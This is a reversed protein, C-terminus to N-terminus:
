GTCTSPRRETAVVLANGEADADVTVVGFLEDLIKDSEGVSKMSSPTWGGALTTPVPAPPPAAAPAAQPSPASPAAGVALPVPLIPAPVAPPPAPSVTRVAGQVDFLKEAIEGSLVGLQAIIDDETAAAAFFAGASRGTSLDTM